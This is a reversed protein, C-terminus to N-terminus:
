VGFHETKSKSQGEYMPLSNLLSACVPYDHRVVPFSLFLFHHHHDDVDVDHGLPIFSPFVPSPYLLIGFNPLLFNLWGDLRVDEREQERTIHMHM